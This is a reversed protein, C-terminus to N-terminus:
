LLWTHHPMDTIGVLKSDSVLPNPTQLWNNTFSNWFCFLPSTSHSLHYLVQRAPKLGQSWDWYWHIFSHIFSYHYTNYLLCCNPHLETASCKGPRCLPTPEMGVCIFFFGPMPLHCSLCPLFTCLTMILWSKKSSSQCSLCWLIPSWVPCCLHLPGSTSVLKSTKSVTLSPKAQATTDKDVLHPHHLASSAGLKSHLNFSMICM